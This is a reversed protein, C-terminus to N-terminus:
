RKLTYLLVARALKLASDHDHGLCDPSTGKGPGTELACGLDHRSYILVWRGHYKVGELSPPLLQYKPQVKGDAGRRRCNVRAIAAGNLEAGFLDDEPPIPELKLNDGAFLQGVFERFSKDFAASGCCADALLTGGSKLLFRLKQLDETKEHFEARGHMYFFRHDTLARASPALPKTKLVVDLGDKRAAAMLAEMAKPAPQWDGNHMLQAVELYGRKVKVTDEGVIPVSPLKRRPAELGTAYAIINAGLQFAKRGKESEQDNAEWYGAIPKPSYVAITKCGMKVGELPFDRPSVAFKGSGQWIPHEPELPALTADPLIRKIMARFDHDFEKHGCCAEALIFGGNTVYEKLIEEMKDRPAFDHGNFFVVPSPLLEAALARREVENDASRKRVDFIQWALPQTPFLERGTFEVLNRVDNRKNNWGNDESPGYAFKSVLVPTRGRALFLLSFSTAVVDWGDLQTGGRGEWHGDPQQRDVLYRCGIEYWDHGGLFRQGSLRGVREIGYLFYYPSHLKETAGPETLPDPFHDGLWELAQTIPENDVYVGCNEASGDPLLKAKGVALDMGTSILGCLGGATMTETTNLQKSNYWWGGNRQSKLYMQRIAQLDKEPVKIGAGIAEHLALLAYQTNSNDPEPAGSKKGYTWGDPLRTELLWDVNKQIQARDEPQRAQTFVMTQLAVVYTKQQPIKRLFKLGSAIAPDTPKEGATLLALLALATWGGRYGEEKSHPGVEWDGNKTQRRKLYAIGDNIARDARVILPDVKPADAAAATPTVSVLPVPPTVGVLVLTGALTVLGLILSCYRNV